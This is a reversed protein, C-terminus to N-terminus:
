PRNRAECLPKIPILIEDNENVAVIVIGNIMSIQNIM